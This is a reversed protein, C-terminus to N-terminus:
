PGFAVLPDRGEAVQVFRDLLACTDRASIPTVTWEVDDPVSWGLHSPSSVWWRGERHEFRTHVELTPGVFIFIVERGRLCVTMEHGPPM